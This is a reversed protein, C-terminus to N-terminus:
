QLGDLKFYAQNNTPESPSAGQTGIVSRGGGVDAKSTARSQAVAKRILDVCGSNHSAGIFPCGLELATLASHPRDLMIPDCFKQGPEALRKLVLETAMQMLRGIGPTPSGEKSPIWLVSDGAKMRCGAKGFILVPRHHFTMKRPRNKKGLSYFSLISLEAVFSIGPQNLHEFVVGLTTPDAIVALVGTSALAHVAFDHLEQLSNVLSSDTSPTTIIVDLSNENVLAHLGSVGSHAITINDVQQAPRGSAPDM